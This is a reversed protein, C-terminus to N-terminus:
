FVGFLSIRWTFHCLSAMFGSVVIMVFFDKRRWIHELAVKNMIVIYNILAMHILLFFINTEIFNSTSFTWLFPIRPINFGSSEEDEEVPLASGEESNNTGLSPQTSTKVKESISASAIHSPDYITVPKFVFFENASSSILCFM